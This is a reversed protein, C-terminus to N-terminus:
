DKELPCCYRQFFKTPSLIATNKMFYKVDSLATICHKRYFFGPKMSESKFSVPCNPFLYSNLLEKVCNNLDRERERERERERVCV